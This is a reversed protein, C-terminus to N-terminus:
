DVFLRRQGRAYLGDSSFCVIIEDSEIGFNIGNDERNCVVEMGTTTTVLLILLLAFMIVAVVTSLEGGEEM